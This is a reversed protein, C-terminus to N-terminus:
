EIPLKCRFNVVTGKNYESHIVLEANIKKARMYMNALGKSGSEENVNIGIGNDELRININGQEVSFYINIENAKSYKFANTLSEKFIFILNRKWILPLIISKLKIDLGHINFEIKPQTRTFLNKGHSIIRDAADWLSNQETDFTWIFDRTELKLAEAAEVTWQLAKQIEESNDPIKSQVFKSFLSIQALKDGAGDHFDAAMEKRIQARQQSKEWEIKRTQQVRYKIILSIFSIFFITYIIFAPLTLYWPPLITFAFNAESSIQNYINKGKVRFVYNGPPLLTYEHYTDYQWLGWDDELGELYYKYHNSSANDFSAAAFEFRISNGSYEFELPYTKDIKEGSNILVDGGYVLSDKRILVKRILTSFNSISDTKIKEAVSPDYNILFGDTGFWVSSDFDTYILDSPTQTIARFPIETFTYKGESIKKSMAYFDGNENEVNFYVNGNIDEECTWVRYTGNFLETGFSREPVFSKKLENFRFIGNEDVFLPSGNIPFIQVDNREKGPILGHSENFYEIEPSAFGNSFDLRRVGEYDGGVWLKGSKDEYMTRVQGKLGEIIGEYIWKTDSGKKTLRLSFLGEETGVFVRMSDKRSRYMKYITQEYKKILKSKNQNISFIGKSSSVLLHEGISLLERSNISEPLINEFRSFNLKTSKENKILSQTKLRFLGSSNVVYLEGNHREADIADAISYSDIENEFFTIPSPYNIRALGSTLIAWLAKQNDVFLRIVKNSNLGSTRDLIRTTKGEKSIVIIGSNITSIAYTSDPLMVAHTITNLLEDADTNFPYFKEGDYLFLNKLAAFILRDNDYPLISTINENAFKAGGPILKLEDNYISMIGEGKQSVFFKDRILFSNGFSTKPNWIKINDNELFIVKSSAQFYVGNKSTHTGTIIQLNGYSKNYLSVFQYSGVSDPELYGFTNYGGVYVRDNFDIAISEVIGNPVYIKRWSVGDYQLVGSLNNGVYIIGKSDQVISWNQPHSKFEKPPLFTVSPIGRETGIAQSYLNNFTVLIILALIYLKKSKM